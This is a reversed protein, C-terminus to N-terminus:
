ISSAFVDQPARGFDEKRATRFLRKATSQLGV